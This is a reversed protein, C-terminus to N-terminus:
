AFKGFKRLWFLLLSFCIRRHFWVFQLVLIVMLISSVFFMHTVFKEVHSISERLVSAIFHVALDVADAITGLLLRPILTLTWWIREAILLIANYLLTWLDCAFLCVNTALVKTHLKTKTFFKSIHNLFLILSEIFCEVGSTSSSQVYNAVTRVSCDIECVFGYFEEGFINLATFIEKFLDFIFKIILFVSRGGHYTANLIFVFILRMSHMFAWVPKVLAAFM